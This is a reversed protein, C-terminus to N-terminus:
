RGGRRRHTWAGRPHPSRAHPPPCNGRTRPDRDDARGGVGPLRRRSLARWRLLLGFIPAMAGVTLVAPDDSLYGSVIAMIRKLDPDNLYADLMAGFPVRMWRFAHPHRSPYALMADVTRPPVPVGGTEDVDAYLVGADFVYRLREHGRRVIRPWSTCFGGALYHQDLVLVDLGRHALLAGATLGGIGAGIVVVDHQDARSFRGGRWVPSPWNYPERAAVEKAAWRRPYRRPVVISLAIGGAIAVHPLVHVLWFRGASWTIALLGLAANVTFVVAWAATLLANIRRFLPSTWYERPWGDRAYQLTFPADALLSIWAM